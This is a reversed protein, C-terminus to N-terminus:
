PHFMAYNEKKSRFYCIAGTGIVIVGVVSGVVIELTTNSTPYHKKMFKEQDTEALKTAAAVKRETAVKAILAKCTPTHM